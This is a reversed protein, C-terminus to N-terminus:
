IYICAYISYIKMYNVYAFQVDFSWEHIKICILLFWAQWVKKCKNESDFAVPVRNQHCQLAIPGDAVNWMHVLVSEIFRRTGINVFCAFICVFYYVHSPIDICILLSTYMLICISTYIHCEYSIYVYINFVLAFVEWQITFAYRLMLYHMTSYQQYAGIM